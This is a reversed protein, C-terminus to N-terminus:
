LQSNQEGDPLYESPFKIAEVDSDFLTQTFGQKCCTAGLIRDLAEM